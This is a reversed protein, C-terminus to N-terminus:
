DRTSSIKREPNKKVDKSVKTGSPQGLLEGLHAYVRRRTKLALEIFGNGGQGEALAKGGAGALNGFPDEFGLFGDGLPNGGGGFEGGDGGAMLGAKDPQTPLTYLAGPNNSEYPNGFGWGAKDNGGGSGAGSPAAGGASGSGNGDNNNGIKFPNEPGKFQTAAVSGGLSGITPLGDDTDVNLLDKSQVNAPMNLKFQAFQQALRSKDTALQRDINALQRDIEAAEDKVGQTCADYSMGNIRNADELAAEASKKMQSSTMAGVGLAVAAGVIAMGNSSGAQDGQEATSIDKLANASTSRLNQAATVCADTVNPVGGNSVKSVQLSVANLRSQDTKSDGTFKLSEVGTIGAEKCKFQFNDVAGHQDTKAAVKLNTSATKGADNAKGVSEFLPGLGQQASQLLQSTAQQKAQEAQQQAQIEAESKTIFCTQLERNLGTRRTLLGEKAQNAATNLDALQNNYAMQAQQHAEQQAVVPDTTNSIAPPDQAKLSYILLVGMLAGVQLKMYIDEGM